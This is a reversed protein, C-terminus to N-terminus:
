IGNKLIELLEYESQLYENFRIPDAPSVELNELFNIHELLHQHTNLKVNHQYSSLDTRDKFTNHSLFNIILRRTDNFSGDMPYLKPYFYKYSLDIPSPGDSFLNSKVLKELSSFFELEELPNSFLAQFTTQTLYTFYNNLFVEELENFYADLKPLFNLNLNYHDEKNM